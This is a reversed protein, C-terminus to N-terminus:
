RLEGPELDSLYNPLSPDNIPRAQLTPPAWEKAFFTERLAEPIASKRVSNPNFAREPDIELEAFADWFGQTDICKETSRSAYRYVTDGYRYAKRGFRDHFQTGLDSALDAAAKAIVRTWEIAAILTEPDDDPPADFVRQEAYSEAAAAVQGWVWDRISPEADTLHHNEM